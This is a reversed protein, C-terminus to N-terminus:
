TKYIIGVFYSISAVAELVFSLGYYIPNSVLSQMVVAIFFLILSVSLLVSRMRLYERRFAERIFAFALPLLAAVSFFFAILGPIIRANYHFIGNEDIFPYPFFKIHLVISLAVFVLGINIVKKRSVRPFLMYFSSAILYIYGIYYFAEGLVNGVGLAFSNNTFFIGVFIHIVFGIGVFFTTNRFYRSFLSHSKKYSQDLRWAIIFFLVAM